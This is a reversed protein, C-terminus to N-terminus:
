AKWRFSTTEKVSCRRQKACRSEAQIPQSGLVGLSPDITPNNFLYIFAGRLQLLAWSGTHATFTSLHRTSSRCRASAFTLQLLAWTGWEARACAWNSWTQTATNPEAGAAKHGKGANTQCNSEDKWRPTLHPRPLWGTSPLKQIPCTVHTLHRDGSIRRGGGRGDEREGRGM